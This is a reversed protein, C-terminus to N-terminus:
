GPRDFNRNAFGTHIHEVLQRTFYKRHCVRIRVSVEARDDRGIWSVPYAYETLRRKGSKHNGVVRVIPGDVKHAGARGCFLRQQQDCRIGRPDGPSKIDQLHQPM